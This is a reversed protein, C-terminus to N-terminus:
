HVHCGLLYTIRHHVYFVSYNTFSYNIIIIAPEFAISHKPYEGSATTDHGEFMFTDVEAQIEADTLGVGDEDQPPNLLPFVVCYLKHFM